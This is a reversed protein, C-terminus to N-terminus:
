KVWGCSSHWAKNVIERFREALDMSGVYEVHDVHHHQLKDNLALATDLLEKFIAQEKSM